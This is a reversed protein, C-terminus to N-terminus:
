QDAEEHTCTEFENGAGYHHIVDYHINSFQYLCVCLMFLGGKFHLWDCRLAYYRECGRPVVHLIGQGFHQNFFPINWSVDECIELYAIDAPKVYRHEQELAIEGARPCGGYARCRVAGHIVVLYAIRAAQLHAAFVRGCGSSYSRNM